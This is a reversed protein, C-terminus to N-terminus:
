IKTLYYNGFKNKKFKFFKLNNKNLFVECIQGNVCNKYFTFAGPFPKTSAKILNLIDKM